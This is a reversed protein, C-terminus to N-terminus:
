RTFNSPSNPSSLVDKFSLLHGVTINNSIFLLFHVTVLPCRKKFCMPTTSWCCGHTVALCYVCKNIMESNCECMRCMHHIMTLQFNHIDVKLVIGLAVNQSSNHDMMKLPYQVGLMCNGTTKHAIEFFITLMKHFFLIYMQSSNDFFSFFIMKFKLRIPM